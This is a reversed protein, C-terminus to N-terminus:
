RMTSFTLPMSEIHELEIDANIQDIVFPLLDKIRYKEKSVTDLNQQLRTQQLSPNSGHAKLSLTWKAKRQAWVGMDALLADIAQRQTTEFMLDILDITFSKIRPKKM